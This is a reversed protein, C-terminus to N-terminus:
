SDGAESHRKSRAVEQLNGVVRSAEGRTSCFAVRCRGRRGSRRMELEVGRHKQRWRGQWLRNRDM